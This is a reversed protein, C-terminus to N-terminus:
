RDGVTEVGEAVDVEVAALAFPGEEEPIDEGDRHLLELYGEIAEQVHM